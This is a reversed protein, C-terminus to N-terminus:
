FAHNCKVAQGRQSAALAALCVRTLCLTQPKDKLWICTDHQSESNDYSPPIKTKLM